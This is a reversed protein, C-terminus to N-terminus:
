DLLVNTRAKKKCHMIISNDVYYNIPAAKSKALRKIQAVAIKRNYQVEMTSLLDCWNTSYPVNYRM